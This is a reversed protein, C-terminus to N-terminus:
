GSISFQVRARRGGSYIFKRKKELARAIIALLAAALILSIM